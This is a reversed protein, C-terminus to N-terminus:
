SRVGICLLNKGFVKNFTRDALRSLPFLYRDYAILARRNIKGTDNGFAKFLLSAFFGAADVYQNKIVDFGASRVRESLEARTYRRFHGVKKDMSSYLMQFAPVYIMVRGGPKIKERWLMLAAVDDEIHELVNLAYLLDVSGGKLSSLDPSASLGLESIRALQRSDSEICHIDHGHNAIAMAFTGLGAGFDVIKEGLNAENLILSVLFRNYNVADAMVELNETGTYESMKVKSNM